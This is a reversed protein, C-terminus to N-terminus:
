YMREFHRPRPPPIARLYTAARADRRLGLLDKGTLAHWLRLPVFMGLYALALLLWSVVAATAHALRLIGRHVPAYAQPALWALVALGSAVILVCTAFLGRLWLWLALALLAAVTAQLRAKSFSTLRMRASCYSPRSVDLTIAARVSDM